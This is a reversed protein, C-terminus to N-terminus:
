FWKKSSLFVQIVTKWLTKLLLRKLLNSMFFSRNELGEQKELKSM